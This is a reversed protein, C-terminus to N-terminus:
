RFMPQIERVESELEFVIEKFFKEDLSQIYIQRCFYIGVELRGFAKISSISWYGKSKSNRHLLKVCFNADIPNDTNFLHLLPKAFVMMDNEIIDIRIIDNIFQGSSPKAIVLRNNSSVMGEMVVWGNEKAISKINLLKKSNELSQAEALAPSNILINIVDANYQNEVKQYKQDINSM